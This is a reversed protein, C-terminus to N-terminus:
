GGGVVGVQCIIVGAGNGTKLGHFCEEHVEAM